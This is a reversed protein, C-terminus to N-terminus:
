GSAEVASAAPSVSSLTLGALVFTVAVLLPLRVTEKVAKPWVMVTVHVDVVSESVVGADPRATLKCGGVTLPQVSLKPPVSVTVVLPVHSSFNTSARFSEVRASGFL